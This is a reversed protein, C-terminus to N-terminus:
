QGKRASLIRIGGHGIVGVLCLAALGWGATNLLENARRGPMYIGPLNDLRGVGGSPAHCQACSLADGKPAVMHTIPWAMETEVFAYKGSYEAGIEKMGFEIAKDWNFNSWLASDDKGYTHFVVLQNNGIDYPQKGRFVKIPWIKSKGDDPSGEFSNIKIVKSPDLKTERLTYNVTGNFWIYEPIVNSEYKFDGKKSDYADHGTADKVKFPKGDKDLKGATSWDWLMKTPKGGRAFEPIHCTQCAIKTAHSNLRADKKHPANGHCAQCTAPNKEEKGRMHSGAQDDSATPTYRSGPVEHGTTKHCTGCSFNLGDKDMHVDLYKGPMTLSSDLDGHKVADGGGGYFHCAGCNRRGTKGVSQAVDKLMPAKVIKGSGPPFEMDKYPPHGSLGPLKRYTGTSEHCVLCDVNEQSAFDFSQDKWGYGAHCATCFEYNSPVATCFNNIVTKKGLRQKTEPNLFEWTWHKSHHVQKAAETHCVLCAKTVEPGTKFDQQLEKFKSHDATSTSIKEVDPTYAHAGAAVSQAPAPDTSAQAGAAALATGAVLALSRMLKGLLM